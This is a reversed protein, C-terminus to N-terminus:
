SEVAHRSFSRQNSKLFATVTKLLTARTVPKSLYATFGAELCRERDGKMAHATLAVVPISIRDAQLRALTQFGDCGPMQIDMVILDFSSQSCKQVAVLGDEATEVTAGADELYRRILKRNEADDDVLLVRGSLAPLSPALGADSENATACGDPNVLEPGDPECRIAFTFASGAGPESEVKVDGGLLKALHSCVSLGLGTGGYKRTASPDVQSFPKFLLYLKEPPIGSGTDEVRFSLRGSEGNPQFSIFVTVSGAETFKVANGILNILAQHIRIPDSLISAPIPTELRRSLVLGKKEAQIRVVQLAEDVIQLPSCSIREVQMEGAEIKSLDLIDCILEQLHHGSRQIVELDELAEADNALRQRLLDAYGIIGTLPTRLEHSINALFSDKLRSTAEAADKALQLHNEIAKRETIDTITGVYGAIESHGVKEPVGEALVWTVTGDPRQFRCETKFPRTSAAAQNWLAMVRERDERHIARAWGNGLASEAPLGAIACWRENVYVCAGTSDTGFIGVPSVRALTQFRRESDLLSLEAQKRELFQGIQNGISEFLRFLDGDAANITRGCIELVSHVKGELLIPFAFACRLGAKRAATERERGGEVELDTAWSAKGRSWARGPIGSERTYRTERTLREYDPADLTPASWSAACGLADAGPDASWLASAEWGLCECTVQLIRPAADAFSDADALIRAVSYHLARHSEARKRATIDRLCGTFIPPGDTTVRAIALECPFESGDARRGTVEVRKGLISGQGTEVCRALGEDHAARLSPPVIVDAMLRGLVEDRRYGFIAEAATNFELIRGRSDSSVIGDIAADLIAAKRADSVRAESDLRRKERQLRHQELAIAVSTSLRSMRDKLIYDNAGERVMGVAADEGITGSVVVFPVDIKKEKLLRLARVAGFSPMSFDSLIIDPPSEFGGKRLERVTLEADAPNDEVILLRLPVPM